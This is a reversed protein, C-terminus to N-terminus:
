LNQAVELVKKATKTASNPNQGTVLRGDVVTHGMLPLMAKSYLMGREKLISELNYPVLRKVGALAEDLYPFGTGKKGQILFEGNSLRVNQLAAVGHCVASIIKGNEYMTRTLAHLEPNDVFDWMAGHGGAFYLIAYESPDVESISRTTDLLAMFEPDKYRKKTAKDLVFFGLSRSDIPIKGGRPSAIDLGLGAKELEDYFHTLESLWLGTPETDSGGFDSHNTAVILAKKNTM